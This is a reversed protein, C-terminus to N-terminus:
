PRIEAIASLENSTPVTSEIGPRASSENVLTDNCGFLAPVPADNLRLYVTLQGRHHALHTFSDAIVVHRPDEAV